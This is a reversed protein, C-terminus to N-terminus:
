DWEAAAKAPVYDVLILKDLADCAKCHVPDHPHQRNAAHFLAAEYENRLDSMETEHEKAQEKLEQKLGYIEDKMDAKTM